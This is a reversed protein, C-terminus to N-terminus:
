NMGAKNNANFQSELTRVLSEYTYAFQEEEVGSVNWEKNWADDGGVRQRIGMVLSLWGKYFLMGQAAIPDRQVGVPVDNLKNPTGNATWGPIDYEGFLKAPVMMNKLPPFLFHVDRSPDTGFQTNFDVVGWFSLYRELLGDLITTYVERWAPTREAALLLFYSSEHCDFRPFCAMPSFSYRDWWPHPEGDISWDDGEWTTAKLWLFHLWGRSERNLSSDKEEQTAACNEKASQKGKALAKQSKAIARFQRFAEKATQQMLTRGHVFAPREDKLSAHRLRELEAARKNLGAVPNPLLIPKQCCSASATATGCSAVGLAKQFALVADKTKDDVTWDEM